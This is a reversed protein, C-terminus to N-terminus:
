RSLKQDFELKITLKVIHLYIFQIHFLKRKKKIVPISSATVTPVMRYLKINM